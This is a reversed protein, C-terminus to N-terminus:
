YWKVTKVQTRVRDFFLTYSLGARFWVPGIKYFPSKIYELGASMSFTKMSYKLALDPIIMFNNEPTILTGKLSNGFSYGALISVSLSLNSKVPNEHLTFDKFLGAYALSGKDMYQYFLHESNKILVRTYGPKLDCGAVIGGNLYPEKFSLNFGTYIDKFVFRTSATFAVQDIGFKIRGPVNNEKLLSVFDKRRYKSAILYPSITNQGPESWKNGTRLLYKTAEIHNASIALDLANYGSNNTTYIDVGKIFLLDMILTDGNFAAALFPTFGKKNRAEMNAGNQILLDAIDANGAMVATHLPTLGEDSKANISAEYYLLLDALEFYNNVAAHHLATAGHRDTFDIDAGARILVECIDPNNNKAAIILPTELGSTVKDIIPDFKLLEKVATLSNNIVAFTLPTAGEETESNIDAGALILREIESVYGKSAAIMLNYDVAMPYFNPIYDSTDIVQSATYSEQQSFSCVSLCLSAGLIFIRLLSVKIVSM